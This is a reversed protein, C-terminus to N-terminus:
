NNTYKPVMKNTPPDIRTLESLLHGVTETPGDPIKVFASLKAIAVVEGVEGSKTRVWDGVQIAM